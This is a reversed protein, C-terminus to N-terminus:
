RGRSIALARLYIDLLQDYNKDPTYKTDYERRGELGLHQMEESHTWAWGIRDALEDANGASFILGTRGHEVIERGAPGANSAIVPLSSSFAEVVTTGFTEYSNSAFLLARASRMERLVSERPLRGLYSVWSHEQAVQKVETEMPGDGVIRLPAVLAHKNWARLITRLGKQESLRGVFLMFDGPSKPEADRYHFFNPKVVVQDPSIGGEVFKQRSFESPTIYLDIDNRWTGRLRHVALMTAIVSTELRSKHYCAHLVGPWPVVHGKCDECPRGDRFFNSEPCLLRYNHLTQVVAVGEKKCAVYSAPSILPFTNHFHVVDPRRDRVLQRLRQYYHQSWVAGLALKPLELLPPDILPDADVRFRSVPHGHEEFLDAEAEFVEDEGGRNLYANYVFLVSPKEVL